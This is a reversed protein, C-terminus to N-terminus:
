DRSLPDLADRVGDGIFNFALTTLFIAAAPALAIHPASFIYQRGESLMAGWEPVSPPVGLGLFGLGAAAPITAAITLTGQVAIPGVINPLVHRGMIHVDGPGLARSAEVFAQERLSLVVSRVLRIFVPATSVGIAVVVNRFGVGLIAALLIALLIGPVALMIDVVRQVVLDVAGSYYGSLLGLPVGILMSVGTAALAVLLSLRAGFLLRSFVDRGLHDTGFPHAASPTQLTRSLDFGNPPYDSIFLAFVAAATFTLLMLVGLFTLPQRRLRAWVRSAM